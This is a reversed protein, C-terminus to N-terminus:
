HKYIKNRLNTAEESTLVHGTSDTIVTSATRYDFTYVDWDGPIELIANGPITTGYKLIHTKYENETGENSIMYALKGSNDFYYSQTLTNSTTESKYTIVEAYYPINNEVRTTKIMSSQVYREGTSTSTTNYLSTTAIKLDPYLTYTTEGDSFYQYIRGSQYTTKIYRKNGVTSEEQVYGLDSNKRNVREVEMYWRGAANRARNYQYIKSSMYEIKTGDPLKTTDDKTSSSSSSSGNSNSSSASSSSSSGPNGSGGTSTSGSTSPGASAGGCATLMSLAMAAALIGVAARKMMRMM